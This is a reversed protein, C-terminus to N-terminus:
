RGRSRLYVAYAKLCAEQLSVCVGCRQLIIKLREVSLM